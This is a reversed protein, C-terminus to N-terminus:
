ESTLTMRGPEGPVTIDWTVKTTVIYSTPLIYNADEIMSDELLQAFWEAAKDYGASGSMGMLFKWADYLFVQAYQQMIWEKATPTNQLTARTNDMAPASFGFIGVSPERVTPGGRIHTKFHDVPTYFQSALDASTHFGIPRKAYSILERRRFIEMNGLMETGFVAELDWAGPEFEPDNLDVGTDLVLDATDYAWPLDKQIVKDWLDDYEQSTDPDDVNVVFGSVGYMHSGWISQVGGMISVDLWVNNLKTGTPMPVYAIVEDENIAVARAVLQRSIIQLGM